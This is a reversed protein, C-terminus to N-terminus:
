QANDDDTHRYLSWDVSEFWECVADPDIWTKGSDYGYDIPIDDSQYLVSSLFQIPIHNMIAAHKQTYESITTCRRNRYPDEYMFKNFKITNNEVFGDILIQDQDPGDCYRHWVTFRQSNPFQIVVTTWDVWEDAYICASHKDELYKIPNSCSLMNEIPTPANIIDARMDIMYSKHVTHAITNVVDDDLRAELAAYAM